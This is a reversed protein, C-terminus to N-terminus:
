SIRKWFSDTHDYPGNRRGIPSWCASLDELTFDPLGSKYHELTTREIVTWKEGPRGLNSGGMLQELFVADAQSNVISLYNAVVDPEMEQFSSENWFLDFKLGNLLPFKWTPFMFIKGERNDPISDMDRTERYSVVSDPFVTTMYREAVYIQPVLDFLILCTKPHLKKIVEAQRGMGGGLEVVTETSDFDIYNCCYVYRLYFALMSWSYTKDGDTIFPVPNGAMSQTFEEIPKAGAREALMKIFELSMAKLGEPRQYTPPVIPFLINLVNNASEWASDWFPIKSTYRNLVLRKVKQRGHFMDIRHPPPYLDSTIISLPTGNSRRADHLGSKRLDDSMKLTFGSWFNTPRYEKPAQDVDALMLELLEQDDAIQLTEREVLGDM